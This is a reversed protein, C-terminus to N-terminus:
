RRGELSELWEQYTEQKWGLTRGNLRLPQPFRGEIVWRWLSRRDRNILTCVQTISLLQNHQKIM